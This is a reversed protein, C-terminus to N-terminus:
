RRLQITLRNERYAPAAFPVFAVRRAAADAAHREHPTTSRIEAAIRCVMAAAPAAAGTIASGPSLLAAAIILHLFM